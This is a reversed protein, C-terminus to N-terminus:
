VNLYAHFNYIKEARPLGVPKLIHTARWGRPTTPALDQLRAELGLLYGLGRDEDQRKMEFKREGMIGKYKDIVWDMAIEYAECETLLHTISEEM